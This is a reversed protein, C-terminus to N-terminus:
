KRHLWSRCGCPKWREALTTSKGSPIGPSIPINRTQPYGDRQFLRCRSPGWRWRLRLATGGTDINFADDRRIGGSALPRRSRVRRCRMAEPLTLAALLDVGAPRIIDAPFFFVSGPIRTPRAPASLFCSRNGATLAIEHECHFPPKPAWDPGERPSVV